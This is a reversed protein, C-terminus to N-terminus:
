SLQAEMFLQFGVHNQLTRRLGCFVGASFAIVRLDVPAHADALSTFDSSSADRARDAM